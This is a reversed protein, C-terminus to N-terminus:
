GLRALAIRAVSIVLAQPAPHGAQVVQLTMVLSGKDVAVAGAGNVFEARDGLGKLPTTPGSDPGHFMSLDGVGFGVSVYSVDAMTMGALPQRATGIICSHFGNADHREHRALPIGLIRMVEADTVLACADLPTASSKPTCIDALDLGQLSGKAGSVGGTLALGVGSKHLPVPPIDPGTGDPCSCGGDKTCFLSANSLVTDVNGDSLMGHGPVSVQVLDTSIDLERLTQTYAAASVAVAQKGVSLPERTPSDATIGPGDTDWEKGLSRQRTTSAAWTDLFSDDTSGSAAFSAESSQGAVWMKRFAAWPSHATEQMHAYFGIADYKRTRLDTGPHALYMEWLQVDLSDTGALVAGAWEASGEILWSPAAYFASENNYAAAQFCHVMEHALTTAPVKDPAFTAPYLHM